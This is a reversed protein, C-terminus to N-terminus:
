AEEQRVRVDQPVDQTHKKRIIALALKPLHNTFVCLFAALIQLGSLGFVQAEMACVSPFAFSLNNAGLRTSQLISTLIRGCSPALLM